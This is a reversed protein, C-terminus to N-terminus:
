LIQNYIFENVTGGLYTGPNTCTSPSPRTYIKQRLRYTEGYFGGAVSFTTTWPVGSQCDIDTKVCDTVVAVWRGFIPNSADFQLLELQRIVVFGCGSVQITGICELNWITTVIESRIDYSFDSQIAAYGSCRGGNVLPAIPVIQPGQPYRKKGALANPSNVIMMAALCATTMTVVFFTGFTSHNKRM